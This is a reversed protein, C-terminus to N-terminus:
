CRCREYGGPLFRPPMAHLELSGADIVIAYGELSECRLGVLHVGLWFVSVTECVRSAEDHGGSHANTLAMHIRLAVDALLSCCMPKGFTLANQDDAYGALQGDCRTNRRRHITLASLQGEGILVFFQARTSSNATSHPELGVRHKGQSTALSSSMARVKSFSACCHPASSQM